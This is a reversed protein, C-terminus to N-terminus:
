SKKNISQFSLLWENLCIFHSKIYKEKVILKINENCEFSFDDNNISLLQSFINVINLEEIDKGIGTIIKIENEIYNENFQYEPPAVILVFSEPFDNAFEIDNNCLSINKNSDIIKIIVLFDDEDNNENSLNCFYSSNENVIIKKFIKRLYPKIVRELRQNYPTVVINPTINIFQHINQNPLRQIFIDNRNQNMRQNSQFNHILSNINRIFLQQDNPSLSGITSMANVFNPNEIILQNLKRVNEPEMTQLNVIIDTNGNIDNQVISSKEDQNMSMFYIDNIHLSTYPFHEKLHPKEKFLSFMEKLLNNFSHSKINGKFNEIAKDISKAIEAATIKKILPQNKFTAEIEKLIFQDKYDININENKSIRLLDDDHSCDIAASKQDIFKGKQNLFIKKLLLDNSFDSEKSLFTMFRVYWKTVSHVFTDFISSLDKIKEKSSIFDIITRGLFKIAYNTCQKMESLMKFDITKPEMRIPTIGDILKSFDINSILEYFEKNITEEKNQLCILKIAIRYMEYTNKTISNKNLEEMQGFIQSSIDVIKMKQHTPYCTIHTDILKSYIDNQLIDKIADPINADIYLDKLAGFCLDQRPIIKQNSMKQKKVFTLFDNMWILTENIDIKLRKSLLVVHKEQKSKGITNLEDFIMEIVIKDSKNWTDKPLNDIYKEYVSYGFDNLFNIIIQRDSKSYDKSVLSTMQIAAERKVKENINYDFKYNIDNIADKTQYVTINKLGKIFHHVLCTDLSKNTLLKYINKIEQSIPADKDTKLYNLPMFDNNINPIVAYKNFLFSSQESYQVFKILENIFKIKDNLNDISKLDHLSKAKSIIKLFSEINLAYKTTKVNEYWNEVEEKNVIKDKFYMHFLKWLHERREKSCDKPFYLSTVPLYQNNVTKVIPQEYLFNTRPKFIKENIWNIDIFQNSMPEQTFLNFYDEYKNKICYELIEKFLENAQLLLERNKNVKESKTNKLFITSRAENPSFKFSNIIMPQNFQESGILPFCCFLKPIDSSIKQIKNINNVTTIPLVINIDNKSNMILKTAKISNTKETNNQYHITQTNITIIEIGNRKIENQKQIIYKSYDKENVHIFIAVKKILPNFLLSYPLDNLLDQIGAKATDYTDSELPYEFVTDMDDEKKNEDYNILAENTQINRLQDLASKIKIIMESSNTADRDITMKFRKCCKSQSRVIGKVTFIRSLLHTTIFGTGFKGTVNPDEGKDDKSSVQQILSTINKYSFCEGNHKFLLRNNFLEINVSVGGFKNPVDKANQLLEWVWRRKADETANELVEMGQIIKDAIQKIFGEQIEKNIEEVSSDDGNM